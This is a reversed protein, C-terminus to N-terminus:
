FYYTNFYCLIHSNGKFIINKKDQINGSYCSCDLLQNQAIMMLNYKQLVRTSKPM